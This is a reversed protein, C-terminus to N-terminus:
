LTPRQQAMWGAIFKDGIDCSVYNDGQMGQESYSVDLGDLGMTLLWAQLEVMFQKDTYILGVKDVRWSDTNFHVFLEGHPTYDTDEDDIPGYVFVKLETIKVDRQISSWYGSGNTRLTAIAPRTDNDADDWDTHPDNMLM